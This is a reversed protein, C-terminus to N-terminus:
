SCPAPTAPALGLAAIQARWADWTDQDLSDAWTAYGGIARLLRECGEIQEQAALIAADAHGRREAPKARIAAAWEALIKRETATM